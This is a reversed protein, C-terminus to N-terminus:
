IEQTHPFESIWPKQNLIFVRFYNKFYIFYNKMRGNKKVRRLSTYAKAKKSLQCKGAKGIKLSFTLDEAIALGEDFGGIERFISKRCACCVTPFLPFGIHATLAAVKNMFGYHLVKFLNDLFGLQELGIVSGSICVVEPNAFSQCMEDLFEPDLLTDADLFLLFEGRAQNAGANRAKSVGRDKITIVKDAHRESKVRTDDPSNSDVVIIEVKESEFLRQRKISRICREINEEECYTPIIISVLPSKIAITQERADISSM